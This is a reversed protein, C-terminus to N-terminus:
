QSAPFRAPKLRIPVPPVIDRWGLRAIVDNSEGAKRGKARDLSWTIHWTGGDPRRESGGIRVVMAQVGAADDAM